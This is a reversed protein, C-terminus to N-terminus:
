RPMEPCVYPVEAMTFRQEEAGGVLKLNLVLEADSVSTIDASITMGDEELSIETDSVQQWNSLRYTEWCSDSVLTGDALFIHMVGPLENANGQQVWVRNLLPNEGEAEVSEEAAQDVDQATAPMAGVGWATMLALIAAAKDM